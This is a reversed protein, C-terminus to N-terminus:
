YSQKPYIPLIDDSVRAFFESLMSICFFEPTLNRQLEECGLAYRESMGLMLVMCSIWHYLPSGFSFALRGRLLKKNKIRLKQWSPANISGSVLRSLFDEDVSAFM